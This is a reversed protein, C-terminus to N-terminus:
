TIQQQEKLLNNLQNLTTQLIWGGCFSITVNAYPCLFLMLSGMSQLPPSYLCVVNTVSMCDAM